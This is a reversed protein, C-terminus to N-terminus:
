QHDKFGAKIAAAEMKRIDNYNSDDPPNFRLMNADKLIRAGEKDKHMNLLANQLESGLAPPAKKSIVVPPAGAGGPFLVDIIKVNLAHSIKFNRDYDLVLSDVASADVIGESVMRISEEHSGSVLVKSFYDEWSKAGLKVLKYRPMNYGSNSNQDNYAFSKGKLEKWSKIKSDKRVITYSFYKGPTNEYGPADSYKGNKMAMVPIAILNYKGQKKKHIYPLGCVFGVQVIGKELLLDSHKYSVNSVVKINKKIKKSLYKALEEYVHMGNESVFAATIVIKVDHKANVNLPILLFLLFYLDLIYNHFISPKNFFLGM